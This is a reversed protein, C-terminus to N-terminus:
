TPADVKIRRAVSVRRIEQQYSVVCARDGSRALSTRLGQGIDSTFGVGGGLRWAGGPAGVGDPGVPVGIGDPAVPVGIRDPRGTEDSPREAASLM